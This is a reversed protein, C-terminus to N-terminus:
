HHLVILQSEPRYWGVLRKARRDRRVGSELLKNKERPLIHTALSKRDVLYPMIIISLKILPGDSTQAEQQDEMNGWISILNLRYHCLLDILPFGKISGPMFFSVGTLRYRFDEDDESGLLMRDRRKEVRKGGCQLEM